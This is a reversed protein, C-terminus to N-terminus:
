ATVPVPEEPPRKSWYLGMAIGSVYMWLSFVASPLAVTPTFFEVALTMGITTNQIAMEIAITRSQKESIGLLRPLFYGSLFGLTNHVIVAMGTIRVMGFFTARNLFVVYVITGVLAIIGIIKFIKEAKHAAKPFYHKVIMGIAVPIAIMVLVIKLMDLFPITFSQQADTAILGGLFTVVIPTLIPCLLTSISTVTIALAIDGKAVYNIINSTTGSPCCGVLIVGIAIEYPLDFLKVVLFAIGPMIIYHGFTGIGAVLPNKWVRNFDRLSLELGMGLMVTALVIPLIIKAIGFEM